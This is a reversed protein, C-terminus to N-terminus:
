YDFLPRLSLFLFLPFYPFFVVPTELTGVRRRLLTNNRPYPLLLLPPPPLPPIPPPPRSLRRVRALGCDSTLPFTRRLVEWEDAMIFKTMRFNYLSMSDELWLSAHSRYFLLSRRWRGRWVQEEQFAKGRPARWVRRGAAGVETKRERESGRWRIQKGECLSAPSFPLPSFSAYYLALTSIGLM